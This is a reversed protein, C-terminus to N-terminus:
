PQNIEKIFKYFKDYPLPKSYYYGQIINCGVTALYEVQDKTEAGEALVKLNLDYAINAVVRAIKGSDNEPFDKIFSRDIKLKDINLNKLYSLSSFGTGFDDIAISLGLNRFEELKSNVTEIDNILIGETIELEFNHLAVGYKEALIKFKPILNDDMFQLPSINISIRCSDNIAGRLKQYDQFVREILWYGIEIIMGSNEALPIFVFPPVSGLEANNWRLLAEAGTLTHRKSDVQPQYYVNLENNSLASRLLLDIRLEKELNARLEPSYFLCNSKHNKISTELAFYANNMLQNPTNGDAPFVSIGAKIEFYIDDDGIHHVQRNKELFQQVFDEINQEKDNLTIGIVFISKSIQAIFDNVTLLEKISNILTSIPERIDDINRILLNNFNAISFCILGFKDPNDNISKKILKKLLNENPLNTDLHYNKLRSVTNQQQKIHTLDTFIGIYKEVDTNGRNGVAIISLRKPYFMGDKKKDWLEGHWYGSNNINEWMNKYFSDPHKGSKFHNTKLGIVEACAYGTANEFAKNVYLIKTEKDTIVVADSTERAIRTTINLQERRQTHIYYIVVCIFLLICISLLIILDTLKLGLVINQKSFPLGNLDFSSIIIWTFKLEEPTNIAALPSFREFYTLELNQEYIGSSHTKLQLWLDPNKAEVTNNFILGSASIAGEEESNYLFKGDDNILASKLFSYPNNTFQRSFTQLISEASWDMVLIGSYTNDPAYLPIAIKILASATDEATNGTKTFYINSIYIDGAPLSTAEKYYTLDTCNILNKSPTSRPTDGTLRINIVEKGQKNTLAIQQLNHLSMIVRHFMNAIKAYNETNGTQLLDTIEDSNKILLSNNRIDSFYHPIIYKMIRIKQKQEENIISRAKDAQNSSIFSHLLIYIIIVPIVLISYVWLIKKIGPIYIYSKKM